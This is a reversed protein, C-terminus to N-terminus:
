SMRPRTGTSGSRAQHARHDGARRRPGVMKEPTDAIEFLAKTAKNVGKDTAQASLVVAVLLTFANTHTLEGEPEPRQARFREFIEVIRAYSLEAGM